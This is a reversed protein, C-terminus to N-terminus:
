ATRRTAYDTGLQHRAKPERRSARHPPLAVMAVYSNPSCPGSSGPWLAHSHVLSHEMLDALSLSLSLSLFVALTVHGLPLVPWHVM